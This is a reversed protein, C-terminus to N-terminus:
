DDKEELERRERDQRLLLRRLEEQQDFLTDAWHELRAVRRDADGPQEEERTDQLLTEVLADHFRRRAEDVMRQYTGESCGDAFRLQYVLSWVYLDELERMEQWGCENSIFRGM